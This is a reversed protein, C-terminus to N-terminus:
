MAVVYSVELMAANIITSLIDYSDGRTNSRQSYQPGDDQKTSKMVKSKASKVRIIGGKSKRHTVFLLSVSLRHHCRYRRHHCSQNFTPLLYM